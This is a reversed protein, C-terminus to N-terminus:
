ILIRIALDTPQLPDMDQNHQRSTRSPGQEHIWHALDTEVKNSLDDGTDFEKYLLTNSVRTKFAIVRQLHQGPDNLDEPPLRKFYLMIAPRPRAVQWREEIRNYEEETGSEARGTLQGFRKNLIGVFIDARDVYPNILDQTRMSRALPIDEWGIPEFLIGSHKAVLNNIHQVSQRVREREDSVDGPSAIFVTIRTLANHM